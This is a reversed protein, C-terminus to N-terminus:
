ATKRKRIVFVYVTAAGGGLIVVALVIWIWATSKASEAAEVTFKTTADGSKSRITLTHEGESLTALYSAKLEVIISGERKDYNDATITRGDVLVEVFDSFVADSKFILGNQSNKNWTSDKGETISPALKDIVVANKKYGCVTCEEHKAGAVTVTAQKDVKWAFTHEAEERKEGCLSCEHWHKESNKHWDTGYNHTHPTGEWIAYFTVNDAVHYTTGAIVAGSAGTAWGKFQKGAPATFSNAPLTYAGASVTVNVMTGTGGNANFSVTYTAPPPTAGSIAVATKVVSFRSTHDEFSQCSVFELETLGVELTGTAGADVTCKFTAIVTDAASEYDAASAAGNIIHRGTAMNETFAVDDFGLTAKLGTALSGSDAVYSLGAPIDLVMQITGLDSVPGMTITYNITDGPAATTKDATVTLQTSTVSAANIPVAFSLMSFIMVLCLLMSTIKEKM